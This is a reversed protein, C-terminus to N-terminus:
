ANSLSIRETLFGLSFIIQVFSFPPIKRSYGSEAKTPFIAREVAAERCGPDSTRFRDRAAGAAAPTCTAADPASSDEEDAGDEAGTSRRAPSPAETRCSDEGTSRRGQLM